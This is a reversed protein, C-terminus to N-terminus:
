RSTGYNNVLILLDLVNVTGDLNFDADPNYNEDGESLGWTEVLAIVDLLDVSGDNNVDGSLRLTVTVPETSAQVNEFDQGEPFLSSTYAAAADRLAVQLDAQPANFTLRAIVLDSGPAVGDGDSPDPDLAVEQWNDVSVPLDEGGSATALYELPAGYSRAIMELTGNCSITYAIAALSQETVTAELYLEFTQGPLVYVQKSGDPAVLDLTVSGANQGPSTGSADAIRNRVFLLDKLDIWGDVFADLRPWNGAAEDLHNRILTLDSEDIHFDSDVDGIPRPGYNPRPQGFELAGIDPKGDFVFPDNINPLVAGADIEPAGPVLSFDFDDLTQAPETYVAPPIPDVFDSYSAVIGHQEVGQEAFLQALDYYKKINFYDMYYYGSGARYADYDWDNVSNTPPQGNYTGCRFMDFAATSGMFVNNRFFSNQFMCTAVCREDKSATNHILITGSAGNHLKFASGTRVGPSGDQLYFIENRFIYCPGGFLPQNSFGMRCNMVANRWARCNAVIHDLEIGDDGCKTVLNGFIDYCNNDEGYPPTTTSTRPDVSIGDAFNSIYNYAVIAATGKVEIGESSGIWDSIWPEDGIITCDMITQRLETGAGGNTYGDDTIDVIRIHRIKAHKIGPAYIGDTANRLTLREVIIYQVPSSSTGLTLATGSGGADIVASRDPPGIWCIPNGPTGSKTITFKPYTGPLIYIIDGPEAAAQAAPLGRFPDQRTGSGGGSGPMVYLKRGDPNPVLETWTTAVLVLPNQGIVGDPDHFTLEIEYTQGPEVWFVSGAFRNEAKDIVNNVGGTSDESPTVHEHFRWADLAERWESDGLRRFRVTCRANLNDDGELMVRYGIHIEGPDAFADGVHLADEAGAASPCLLFLWTICFASVLAPVVRNM